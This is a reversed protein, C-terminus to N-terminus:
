PREQADDARWDQVLEGGLFAMSPLTRVQPEVLRRVEDGRVKAYTTEALKSTTHRLLLAVGDLDVGALRHWSGFGRRLDNPTLKAIGARACAAALDRNLNGWSAFLEKDGIARELAFRILPENVATIPVDDESAVTKTGRIHVLGRELDVDERRARFSEGLRSGTGLMWVVHAARHAELQPLLLAMEAPTPWRKRPKHKGSFFPPFISSVELHYTGAHRALLLAQRLHGLEDKVTIPKAGQELRLDVYATVRPADIKALPLETGWIAVFHGVKESAKRKTAEASGRRVLDAKLMKLAGGLTAQHARAYTPDVSRRELDNAVASAAQEDRCATSSRRGFVRCWLVDGRWYLRKDKPRPRRV